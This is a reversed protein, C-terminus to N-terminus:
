AELRALGFDVLSRDMAIEISCWRDLSIGRLSSSEWIAFGIFFMTCHRGDTSLQRCALNVTTPMALQCITPLAHLCNDALCTLLTDVHNTSLTNAFCTSLNDVLPQTRPLRQISPFTPQTADVGRGQLVDRDFARRRLVDRRPAAAM